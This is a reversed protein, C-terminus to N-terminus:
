DERGTRHARNIEKRHRRITEESSGLVLAALAIIVARKM